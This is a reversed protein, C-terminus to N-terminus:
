SHLVDSSSPIPRVKAEALSRPTHFWVSLKAPVNGTRLVARYGVLNATLTTIQNQYGTMFIKTHLEMMEQEKLWEARGQNNDRFEQRRSVAPPTTSGEPTTPTSARSGSQDDQGEQQQQQQQGEVLPQGAVPPSKKKRNRQRPPRRPEPPRFEIPVDDIIEIRPPGDSFINYRSCWESRQCWRERIEAETMSTPNCGDEEKDKGEKEYMDRMLIRGRWKEEPGGILNVITLFRTAAARTVVLRRQGQYRSPQQDSGGLSKERENGHCGMITALLPLIPQQCEQQAQFRLPPSTFVDPNPQFTHCLWSSLAMLTTIDLNLTDTFYEMDDVIKPVKYPGYIDVQGEQPDHESAETQVPVAFLQDLQDDELAAMLPRTMNRDQDLLIRRMVKKGPRVSAEKISDARTGTGAGSSIGSGGGNGGGTLLPAHDEESGMVVNIPIHRYTSPSETLLQSYRATEIARFIMCELPKSEGPQIGAFHLTIRPIHHYHIRNQDAALVLSRTLIALDPHTEKSVHVPSRQRKEGGEQEEEDDDEEEEEDDSDDEMGAFEHVLSWVSGANIRLWSTGHDAVLDVKVHFVPSSEAEASSGSGNRASSAKSGSHQRNKALGGGQGTAAAAGHRGDNGHQTSNESSDEFAFKGTWKNAPELFLFDGLRFEFTKRVAVPNKARVLARVLARLYPLNSSTIQVPKMEHLPTSIVKELFRIEAQIASTLKQLGEISQHLDNDDGNESGKTDEKAEKGEQETQVATPATAASAAAQRRTQKWAELEHLVKRAEVLLIQAREQLEM